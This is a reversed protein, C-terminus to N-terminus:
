FLLEKESQYNGPTLNVQTRYLSPYFTDNLNIEYHEPNTNNSKQFWYRHKIAKNLGKSRLIEPLFDYNIEGKTPIRVTGLIM